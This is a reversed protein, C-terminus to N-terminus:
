MIIAIIVCSLLSLSSVTPPLVFGFLCNEDIHFAYVSRSRNSGSNRSANISTNNSANYYQIVLIVVIVAIVDALRIVLRM